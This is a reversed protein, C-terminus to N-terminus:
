GGEGLGPINFEQSFRQFTKQYQRLLALHGQHTWTTYQFAAYDRSQLFTPNNHIPLYKSIHSPLGLRKRIENWAIITDQYLLYNKKNLSTSQEKQWAIHASLTCPSVIGFEIDMNSYRSSYSLWDLVHMMLCSVNYVNINPPSPGGVRRSICTLHLLTAHVRAMGYSCLCAKQEYLGIKTSSFSPTPVSRM